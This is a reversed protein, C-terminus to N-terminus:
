YIRFMEPDRRTTVRMKYLGVAVGMADLLHQVSSKSRPDGPIKAGAKALAAWPGPASKTGKYPDAGGGFPTFFDTLRRRVMSDNANQFGTLARRWEPSPLGYVPVFGRYAGRLEGGAAATQFVSVGVIRGYNSCSEYVFLGCPPGEAPHGPIDASLDRRKTNGRTWRPDLNPIYEASIIEATDTEPNVRVRVFASHDPGPDCGVFDLVAGREMMESLSYSNAPTQDLNLM